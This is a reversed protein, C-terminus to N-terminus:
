QCDGWSKQSTKVGVPITLPDKYPLIIQAAQIISAIHKERNEIPFQGALSDHVQLLVDVEPLTDDIAKYGRNILCAVSSQPIWAVAQNFITGEIRDFFHMKYGFVNQVFRRGSVQKKIDEQWKKIEPCLSFYWEQIKEVKKMELGIRPSIGSATGLYNTGHCLAKFQAYERPHSHKTMDPNQFYEKMVEIYPKKKEAFQKKMWACSSEWSVIRLDASDLDIDFFEMGEDPVFITRVNPLELGEDELEGGSPINQMNLGTGFANQRSAFRYTDTGCINFSCRMRGDSDPRAEIFTSHFVGLSRLERIKRCLASLIPERQAIKQLAEDDTTPSGSKRNIIPKMGFTQYFLEQMQKPSKINIPFGLMDEIWKEREAIEELLQLKFRKREEYNIRLGKNMTKLVTPALAQQFDNVASLNLAPIVSNLVEGIAYTRVADTCNYIWYKDEGEGKPGETWNTRDDKWYLHDECYMSSLFALNKDLNSFCSHQQIMTDEVDPCLFHWWRYIYQADYNWNQGRIRVARMLRIMMGVLVAEQEAPWYGEKNHQCMLPICIAETKSWAFAICAIHGARTEIDGGLIMKSERPAEAQDILWQLKSVATDYDPRIVLSYDARIVEPFASERVARKLDHVVLPRTSWQVMVRSPPLTPIVKVGPVLTSEMISSRWNNVGWEGTLAWLALNGVPVVVNPKVRRITAELEEVGDIVSQLVHKGRYLRHAGTIDKKKTAVINEIANGKVRDSMVLTMACHERFTGAEQLIKSLEYGGGGIFPEQKLLDQETPIDGVILIKAGLPGVTHVTGM